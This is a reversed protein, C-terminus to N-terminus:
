RRRALKQVKAVTKSTAPGLRASHGCADATLSNIDDAFAGTHVFLLYSEGLKMPFRRSSNESYIPVSRRPSGKFARTTRVRYFTGSVSGDPRTVTRQGEVTGVMVIRSRNFETRLSGDGPRCAAAAPAAAALASVILGIVASRIASM